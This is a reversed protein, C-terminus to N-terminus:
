RAPLANRAQRMIERLQGLHGDDHWLGFIFRSIANLDTEAVPSPVTVSLLPVEPWANLFAHRMRRSEYLRNRAQAITTITRWDTEYRSRGVPVVGRALSAAQAAAEESSATTHVIVHGLNWPLEAEAADGATDHAAPDTPEFVVDADTADNIIALMADIMQDTLEHLDAYQLPQALDNLTMTHARVPTFDLM